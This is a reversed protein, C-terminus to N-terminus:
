RKPSDESLAANALIPRHLIPRHILTATPQAPQDRGSVDALPWISFAQGLALQGLTALADAVGLVRGALRLPDLRERLLVVAM